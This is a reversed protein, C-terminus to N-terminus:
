GRLGSAVGLFAASAVGACLYLGLGASVGALRADIHDLEGLM